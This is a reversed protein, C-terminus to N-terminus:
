AASDQSPYPPPPSAIDTRTQHTDIAPASYPAPTNNRNMDETAYASPASPPLTRNENQGLVTAINEAIRTIETGVQNEDHAAKKPIPKSPLTFTVTTGVNLESDLTFNGGHLEILSKSLALGLGTGEHQRSHHSEIQEFPKALRELDEKAIGIGTDQVKIILGSKKVDVYIRVNGGEPTFKIANTTLNLLVQKIARSDAEIEPLDASRYVLKLRNEEARGRVIRLVQEIMDNLQIAEINLNMKGAEIKSMDLIDNILSLLHQGSFLIDNIYEKYRPDGLPGFMEKKMIDSFGNIANLPTRLEHSMNALFDSKSQNAEEARIKEQQYNEALEFIRVQSEKLVDITNQLTHENKRLQEERERIATIDTGVSVRGGNAIINEMYRIWRGDHLNYEVMGTDENPYYHAVHQLAHYNIVRHEMGVFLQGPAFGLFNEFRENWLVLRNKSDWIAFSDNMSALANHLRSEAAELRIQATRQHTVDMAIGVIVKKHGEGTVSPLGRCSIVIPLHSVHIDMDFEGTMHARRVNSFLKNRDNEHFLSLFKNISITQEDEGYRLLRCLSASMYAQNRELDIEWLGGRSGDVIARYRQKSIETARNAKHVQNLQTHMARLLTWSLLLTGLFLIVFVLISSKTASTLHNNQTSLILLTSNPVKVATINTKKGAANKGQIIKARSGQLLEVLKQPNINLHRAPGNKSFANSGDIIRGGATVLASQSTFSHLSGPQLITVIFASQVNQILTPLTQGEETLVSTISIGSAPFNNLDVQNIIGEDISQSRILQGDRALIAAGTVKDLSVLQPLLNAEGNPAYVYQNIETLTSNIQVETNEAQEQTSVNFTVQNLQTQQAHVKFLELSALILFLILYCLSMIFVSKMTAHNISDTLNGIYSKSIDTPAIPSNPLASSQTHTKNAHPKHNQAHHPPANNPSHTTVVPQNIGTMPIQAAPIQAVPTPSALTSTAAAPSDSPRELIYKPNKNVNSEQRIM